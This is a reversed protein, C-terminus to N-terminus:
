PVKLFIESGGIGISKRSSRVSGMGQGSLLLGVFARERVSGAM